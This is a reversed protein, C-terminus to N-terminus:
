GIYNETWYPQRKENFDVGIGITKVNENLINKRHGSSNMLGHHAFIASTQGYALNEAATQYQHGDKEMRDFPSEGKLNTHDFYQNEAMDMSHKRATGALKNSYSLPQLGKQVREANLLYYDEKEFSEQLYKSPAAYQSNLRNEMQHSIQM